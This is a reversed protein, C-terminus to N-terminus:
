PILKQLAKAIGNNDNTDTVLYGLERMFQPANGMVVPYGVAGLIDLDNEADGIAMIESFQVGFVSAVQSLGKLKVADKPLVEVSTKGTISVSAKEGCVKKLMAAVKELQSEVKVTIKRVGIDNNMVHKRISQVTIQHCSTRRTYSTNQLLLTGSITYVHFYIKEEDLQQMATLAIDQPVISDTVVGKRTVYVYAGNVCILSPSIQMEELVFDFAERIRATAIVTHIGLSEVRRIEAIDVESISGDSRLLTGDLDLALMKINHRMINETQEQSIDLSYLLLKPECVRNILFPSPLYGDGIEYM